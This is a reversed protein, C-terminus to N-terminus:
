AARPLLRPISALLPLECVEVLDSDFRIRRDLKEAAVIAATGILGGLILGLLLNLMPRPSSPYAPPVATNLVAISNQDLQGELRVASSRQMAADYTARAVGVERTLVDLQDRQQKLQLVRQSQADLSRQLEAVRNEAIQASQKIAGTSTALEASVKRRLESVQAAATKYVPHNRDYREAAQALSSEARVLEGKLNQLLGNSLVDPLEELRTENKGAKLMQQLRTEADAHAGQAAALQASIDVLRSNEIDVSDGSTAIGTERQFDSLKGQAAELSQRLGLMQSDFWSAQRRAPEVRLDLNAQIYARAFANALTAAFPPDQGAFRVVVVNSTRSPLVELSNRLRGAIWDRLIATSQGQRQFQEILTPSKDLQLDDVVRLAVNQSQIIDVQTGLYNANAGQGATGIPDAATSNIVLSVEAIYTKPQTLTIGVAAAVVLLLCSLGLIWRARLVRLMEFPTM